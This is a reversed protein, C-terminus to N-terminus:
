HATKRPSIFHPFYSGSDRGSKTLEAYQSPVEGDPDLLMEHMLCAAAHAMKMKAKEIAGERGAQCVLAQMRQMEARHSASPSLQYTTLAHHLCEALMRSVELEQTGRQLVEAPASTM